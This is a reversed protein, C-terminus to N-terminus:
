RHKFKKRKLEPELEQASKQIIFAPVTTCPFLGSFGLKDNSVSERERKAHEALCVIKPFHESNLEPILKSSIQDLEKGLAQIYCCIDALQESIKLTLADRDQAQKHLLAIQHEYRAIPPLMKTYGTSKLNPPFMSSM